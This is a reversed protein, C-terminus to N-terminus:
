ASWNGSATGEGAAVAPPNALPNTAPAVPTAPANAGPDVKQWTQRVDLLLRIQERLIEANVKLHAEMMRSRVASYFAAFNKAADGGNESDLSGHLQQLVMFGHKLDASRKEVDNSEIAAIANQLDHILQDFLVITLGVPSANQVAARLYSLETQSRRM